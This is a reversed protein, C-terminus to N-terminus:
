TSLRTEDLEFAMAQVQTRMATAVHMITAPSAKLTPIRPGAPMSLAAANAGM